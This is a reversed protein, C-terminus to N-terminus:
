KKQLGISIKYMLIEIDVQKKSVATSSDTIVKKNKLTVMSTVNNNHSACFTFSIATILLLLTRM